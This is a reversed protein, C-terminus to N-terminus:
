AIGKAASDTGAARSRAIEWLSGLVLPGWFLGWQPWTLLWNREEFATQQLAYYVLGCIGALRWGLHGSAAAFPLAWALYWAHVLPSVLLLGLFWHQGARALTRSKLVMWIAWAAAPLLYLSNLRLSGEWCEAVLRPLFDASRAYQAFDRPLWHTPDHPPPLMGIALATPLIALVLALAAKRWNERALRWLMWALLPAAVYKIGCAVGMSLAAARWKGADWLLWGAVMALIMWSDFHAGGAFVVLILPCCAYYAAKQTGLKRALLLVVALDAAVVMGKLLAWGPVWAAVRLFLQALPPYIATIGRHQILDWWPTRLHVLEASDPSFVYPNYGHNQVWGEWLYRWVDDAPFMPCLILRCGVAAFLLWTRSVSRLGWSLLYGASMLWAGTWFTPLVGTRAFNGSPMMIAAGAFLLAMSGWKLFSQVPSKRLFFKAWTGLIVSGAMVVGRVTGSIKSQGGQRERSRVAIERIRSGTEVARIQMEVTWGFGRDEMAIQELARRRVLRMPGLDHYRYGWGWRILGTALANGWRQPLTLARASETAARRDGLIFDHDGAAALFAPVKELDDSGDADCFFVWDIEEPLNQLGAWCAQGYGRRTEVVVEAGSAAAVAATEDTSGNDVVRIRSLGQKRLRDLVGPLAQAENLAPIVTLIRSTDPISPM